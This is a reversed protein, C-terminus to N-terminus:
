QGQGVGVLLAEEIWLKYLNEAMPLVGHIWIACTIQWLCPLLVLILAGARDRMCAHM